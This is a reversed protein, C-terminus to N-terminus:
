SRVQIPWWAGKAVSGLQISHTRISEMPTGINSQTYQTTYFMGLSPMERVCSRRTLSPKLQRQM